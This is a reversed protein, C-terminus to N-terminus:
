KTLHDERMMAMPNLIKNMIYEPTRRNLIGASAPGIFKKDPRHCASCKIKYLEAGHTVLSYDIKSELQISKIPGIGKNKFDVKKSALTSLTKDNAVLGSESKGKLFISRKEKEVKDACGFVLSIILIAILNFLKIM